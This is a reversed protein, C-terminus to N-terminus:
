PSPEAVVEYAGLSPPVAWCNGLRDGQDDAGTEGRGAAPSDTRLRYPEPGSGVFRPDDGDLGSAEAIPLVPTYPGPTAHSHWLNHSFRWSAPELGPGLNVIGDPSLAGLYFINNVVQAGSVGQFEHDADSTNEMLFRLAWRGPDVITNHLVSCNVCGVLAVSAEGGIILNDVATADEAEGNPASSSLPPDFESPQTYGGFAIARQGAAEFRCARVEIDSSGGRARVGNGGFFAFESDQIRIQHAGVVDVGRGDAPDGCRSLEADELWIRSAGSIRVCADAEGTGALSVRLGRLVVDSTEDGPGAGLVAGDASTSELELNSIMLFSSDRIMIANTGGSIVPRSGGPDGEIWIPHEATAHVNEIVINGAYSGEHVVIKTGPTALALAREITALPQEEVGSGGDDGTPAVHLTITPTAVDAFTPKADCAGDTSLPANPWPTNPGSPTEYQSLDRTLTCGLSPFCFAAALVAPAVGFTRSRM